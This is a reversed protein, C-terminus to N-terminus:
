FFLNFICKFNGKNIVGINIEWVKVYGWKLVSDKEIKKLFVILYLILISYLKDENM